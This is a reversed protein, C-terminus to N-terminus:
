QSKMQSKRKNILVIYNFTYVLYKTPRVTTHLKCPSLSTQWNRLKLFLGVRQEKKRSLKVWHENNALFTVPFFFGFTPYCSHSGAQDSWIKFLAIQRYSYFIPEFHQLQTEFKQHSHLTSIQTQNHKLAATTTQKIVTSINVSPCLPKTVTCTNYKRQSTSRSTDIKSYLVDCIFAVSFMCVSIGTKNNTINRSCETTAQERCTKDTALYSVAGERCPCTTVM